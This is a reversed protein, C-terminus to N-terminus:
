GFASSFSCTWSMLPTIAVCGITASELKLGLIEAEQNRNQKQVKQERQTHEEEGPDRSAEKRRM